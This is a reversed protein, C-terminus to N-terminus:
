KIFHTIKLYKNKKEKRLYFLLTRIIFVIKPLIAFFVLSDLESM